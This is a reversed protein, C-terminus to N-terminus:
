ASRQSRTNTNRSAPRGSSRNRSFSSNKNKGSSYATSRSKGGRAGGRAFKGSDPKRGGSKKNAISEDHFPHAQDVNLPRGIEAEIRRLYSKEGADCFS